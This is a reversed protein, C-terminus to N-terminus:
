NNSTEIVLEDTIDLYSKNTIISSVLQVMQLWLRLPAVQGLFLEPFSDSVPLSVCVILLLDCMKGRTENEKHQTTQKIM